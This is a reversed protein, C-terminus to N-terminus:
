TINYSLLTTQKSEVTLKAESAIGVQRLKESYTRRAEKTTDFFHARLRINQSKKVVDEISKYAGWAARKRRGLEPDLDNMM